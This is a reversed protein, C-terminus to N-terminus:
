RQLTALRNHSVSPSEEEVVESSTETTCGRLHSGMSPSEELNVKVSVDLPFGLGRGGPPVRAGM